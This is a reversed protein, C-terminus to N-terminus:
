RVASGTTPPTPTTAKWPRLLRPSQRELMSAPAPAPRPQVSTISRFPTPQHSPLAASSPLSPQDTPPQSDLEYGPMNHRQLSPFICTSVCAGYRRPKQVITKKRSVHVWARNASRPVGEASPFPRPIRKEREKKVTAASSKTMTPDQSPHRYLLMQM